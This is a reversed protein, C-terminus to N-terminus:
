IKNWKFIHDGDHRGSFLPRLPDYFPFNFDQYALGIISKLDHVLFGDEFSCGLPTAHKLRLRLGRLIGTSLHGWMGNSENGPLPKFFGSRRKKWGGPRAMPAEGGKARGEIVRVPM